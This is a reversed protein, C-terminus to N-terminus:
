TFAGWWGEEKEKDDGEETKWRRQMGRLVRAGMEGGYKHHHPLSQPPGQKGETIFFGTLSSPPTTRGCGCLNEGGPEKFLM